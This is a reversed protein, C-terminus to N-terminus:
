SSKLLQKSWDVLEELSDRFGRNKLMKVLKDSDVSATRKSLSMIADRMIVEQPRKGQRTLKKKGNNTKVKLQGRLSELYESKQTGSKAPDQWEKVINRVEQTPLSYESALKAVALAAQTDMNMLSVIQEKVGAEEISNKPLGNETIFLDCKRLRIARHLSPPDIRLARAVDVARPAPTGNEEAEKELARFRNVGLEIHDDPEQGRGTCRANFQPAVDHPQPHLFIYVGSIHTYGEKVGGHVTHNGDELVLKEDIWTAVAAPFEDGESLAFAYKGVWKQGIKEVGGTRTQFTKSLELDIDSIPLPEKRFCYTWMERNEFFETPSVMRCGNEALIAEKTPCEKLTLVKVETSVM